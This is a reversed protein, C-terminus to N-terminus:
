AWFEPSEPFVYFAPRVLAADNFIVLYPQWNQKFFFAHLELANVAVVGIPISIM